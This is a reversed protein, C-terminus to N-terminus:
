PASAFRIVASWPGYGAKSKARVRCAYPKGAGLNTFTVGASTGTATKITSGNACRGSYGTVRAGRPYAKVFYIRGSTSSIRWTKLHSPATPVITGLKVKVTRASFTVDTVDILMADHGAEPHITITGVGGTITTALSSSTMTDPDPIGYVDRLMANPLRLHQAGHFVVHASNEHTNQLFFNLASTGTIPDTTIFPAGRTVQVNTFEWMGAIQQHESTTEGFWRADNVVGDLYGPTDDDIGATTPCTEPDVNMNCGTLRYIPNASITLHYDGGSLSRFVPNDGAPAGQGSYTVPNFTGFNFTVKFVKTEEGTGMDVRWADPIWKEFFWSYYGSSPQVENWVVQYATSGSPIDTGDVSFKEICPPASVSCYKIPQLEVPGAAAPASGGLAVLGSAILAFTALMGSTRRSM